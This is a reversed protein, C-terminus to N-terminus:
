RVSLVALRDRGPSRSTMVSCYITLEDPSISSVRSSSLVQRAAALPHRADRRVGDGGPSAPIGPIDRASTAAGGRLAWFLEPHSTESATLVDGDGDRRTVSLLNDSALGHVGYAMWGRRGAHTRRRGDHLDRRRDHGPRVRGNRSRFRGMAAAGRGRRGSCLTSTM